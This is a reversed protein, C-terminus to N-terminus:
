SGCSEVNTFTDLMNPAPRYQVTFRFRGSRYLQSRGGEGDALASVLLTARYSGPKFEFPEGNEVWGPDDTYFFLLNLSLYQQKDLPMTTVLSYNPDTLLGMEKLGFCRLKDFAGIARFNYFRGDADELRLTVSDVSRFANGDNHLAFCLLLKDSTNAHNTGRLLGYRTPLFIDLHGQRRTEARVMLSIAFSALSVLLSVGISLSQLTKAFSGEQGRTM